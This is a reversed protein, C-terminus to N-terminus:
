TLEDGSVFIHLSVKGYDRYLLFQVRLLNSVLVCMYFIKQAVSSLMKIWMLDTEPGVGNIFLWILIFFDRKFM